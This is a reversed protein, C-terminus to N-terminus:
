QRRPLFSRCQIRLCVKEGIPNLGGIERLFANIWIGRSFPATKVKDVGTEDFGV